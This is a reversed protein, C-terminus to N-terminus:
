HGSQVFLGPRESGSKSILENIHNFKPPAFFTDKHNRFFRLGDRVNKENGDFLHGWWGHNIILNTTM